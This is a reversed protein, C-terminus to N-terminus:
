GGAQGGVRNEVALALPFEIAYDGKVVVLSENRDLGEFKVVRHVDGEPQLVDTGARVMARCEADGTPSDGIDAAKGM